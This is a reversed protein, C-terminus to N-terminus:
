IGEWTLAIAADDLPVEVGTLVFALAHYIAVDSGTAASDKAITKQLRYLQTFAQKLDGRLMLGKISGAGKVVEAAAETAEPGAPAVVKAHLDLFRQASEIQQAKLSVTETLNATTILALRVAEAETDAPQGAVGGVLHVQPTAGPTPHLTPEALILRLGFLDSEAVTSPAVVEVASGRVEPEVAAVISSVRVSVREGDAVTNRVPDWGVQVGGDALIEGIHFFGVGFDTYERALGHRKLTAFYATRAEDFPLGDTVGTRVAVGSKILPPVLWTQPSGDHDAPALAFKIPLGVERGFALDVSDHGPNVLVAGSGFEPKVWPAVWIPLLDGTLPHRCYRGTFGVGRVQRDNNVPHAPYVAVACAAPSPSWDTIFVDLAPPEDNGPNELLFSFIAGPARRVSKRQRSAVSSPWVGDQDQGVRERAALSPVYRIRPDDAGSTTVVGAAALASLAAGPDQPRDVLEAPRGQLTRLRVLYSGYERCRQSALASKPDTLSLVTTRM